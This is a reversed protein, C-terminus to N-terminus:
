ETHSRIKVNLPKRKKILVVVLSTTGLLAIFLLQSAHTLVAYSAASETLIGYLENLTRTVIWHYAGIGAPVPMVMALSGMMLLTTGDILNLHSTAQLAKFPIYSMLFYMFWILITHAIFAKKRKLNKITKIGALFGLMLDKMKTYFSLKRIYPMSIRLLVYFLVITIIISIGLLSILWTGSPIKSTLPTWIMRELFSRLFSFQAIIVFFSIVMVTILDFARESIVTGFLSNLPINQRRSLVTCRTVEGLRPFITNAFYGMITAHFTSGLTTKYGMANIMINWRAARSIHAIFAPVISLLIWLYKAQRFEQGIKSFDLGRLALWLLGLGVSLFFIYRLAAPISKKL